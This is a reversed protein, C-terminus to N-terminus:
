GPDVVGADILLNLYSRPEHGTLGLQGAFRLIVDRAADRETEDAVTEIELFRGLEPVTDLTIELERSEWQLSYSVRTKRVIGVSRFGLELLLDRSEGQDDPDGFPIEIERRTKAITDVVPGKYTLKRGSPLTRIRFAENTEAFDRCPHNFYEDVQEVADHRVAGLKEVADVVGDPDSLPFKLEVEYQMAQRKM